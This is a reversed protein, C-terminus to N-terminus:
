LQDAPILAKIALWAGPILDKRMALMPLQAIGLPAIAADVRPNDILQRAAFYTVAQMLEGFTQPNSPYASTAIAGPAPPLPMSPAPGAAAAAAGILPPLPMAAPAESTQQVPQGFGLARWEDQVKTVISADLSRKGRWTGDANRTKTSAHIRADWPWGKADVEAAAAPAAPMPAAPAPAPPAPFQPWPSPPTQAAQADANSDAFVSAADTTELPPAFVDAAPPMGADPVDAAKILPPAKAAAADLNALWTYIMGSAFEIAARSDHELDVTIQM